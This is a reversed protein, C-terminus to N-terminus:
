QAQGLSQYFLDTGYSTHSPEGPVMRFTREGDEKREATLFISGEWSERYLKKALYVLHTVMFTTIGNEYFAKLIGEAIQSGEKETTSAFSENLLFLSDPVAAKVMQSMRQLEERLRGSNLQEDESRTFHTFLQRYVPASFKQAPVPMGCQMLVQAIGYSRLFTSKGGQNAGTVITLRNNDWRANNGVPCTQLYIAMSLEYLYQFSTDKTGIPKPKPFFLPVSFAQLRNMFRVVGKYFAIEEAFSHYFSLIKDLVPQFVNLISQATVEKLQEVDKRLPENNIYIANKKIYKYYLKELGTQKESPNKREYSTVTAYDIKMGGGFQFFYNINGGIVFFDMERLKKAYQEFPEEQLRRHLARLGDSEYDTSGALIDRLSILSDVAKQLFDIKQITEGTTYTSRTRNNEIEEKYRQLLRNQHEACQYLQDMLNTHSCLDKIIDQRYWIEEPSQLPIMMVKQVHEAVFPDGGSMTRFIIDLNLDKILDRKSYWAQKGELSSDRYLLYSNM